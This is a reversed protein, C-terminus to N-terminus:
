IIRDYHLEISNRLSTFRTFLNVADGPELDVANILLFLTHELDLEVTPGLNTGASAQPSYWFAWQLAVCSMAFGM